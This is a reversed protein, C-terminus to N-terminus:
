GGKLVVNQSGVRQPDPTRRGLATQFRLLYGDPDAVVFQQVGAEADGVPYWKTEVAMFLRIGAAELRGALGAADGVSIQLNVGRGFPVELVGAVWNRGVGAQELMVHAGELELYAFREDPREYRVGFGCLDRWFWLSADLDRVLLEPVLAPETM